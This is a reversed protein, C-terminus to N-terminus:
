WAASWDLRAFAALRRECSTGLFWRFFFFCPLDLALCALMNQYETCLLVMGCFPFFSFFFIASVELGVVRTWGGVMGDMWGEGMEGSFGILPRPEPLFFFSRQTVLALVPHRPSSVNPPPISPIKHQNWSGPPVRVCALPSLFFFPLSLHLCGQRGFMM